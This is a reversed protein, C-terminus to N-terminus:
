IKLISKIRNKLNNKLSNTKKSWTSSWYHVAYTNETICNESFKELWSYPFFYERPYIKIDNIKEDQTGTYGEQKLLYTTVASDVGGSVGVLVKM